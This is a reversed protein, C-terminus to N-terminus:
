SQRARLTSQVKGGSLCESLVPGAFVLEFDDDIRLLGAPVLRMLMTNIPHRLAPVTVFHKRARRCCMSVYAHRESCCCAAWGVTGSWAGASGNGAGVAACGVVLGVDGSTAITGGSSGGCRCCRGLRRGGCAFDGGRCIYSQEPLFNIHWQKQLWRDREGSQYLPGWLKCGTTTEASLPNSLLAGNFFVNFAHMRSYPVRTKISKLIITVEDGSIMVALKAFLLYMGPVPVQSVANDKQLCCECCSPMLSAPWLLVVILVDGM